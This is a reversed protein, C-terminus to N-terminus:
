GNVTLYPAAGAQGYYGHGFTTIKLGFAKGVNALVATNRNIKIKPDVFSGETGFDLVRNTKYTGGGSGILLYVQDVRKDEDGSDHWGRGENTGALVV